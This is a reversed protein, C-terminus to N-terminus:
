VVNKTKHFLIIWPSSHYELILRRPLFVGQSPGVFNELIAKLKDLIFYDVNFLSTMGDQQPSKEEKLM